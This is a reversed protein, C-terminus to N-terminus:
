ISVEAQIERVTIGKQRYKLIGFQVSVVIQGLTLYDAGNTVKIKTLRMPSGDSMEMEGLLSLSKAIYACWKVREEQTPAFVHVVADANLWIVTNTERDTEMQDLRFYFAPIGAETKYSLTNNRDGLLIGSVREKQFSQLAAIPDPEFTEQSSFEFIDFLMRSRVMKARDGEGTNLVPINKTKRWRYCYAAEANPQLFLDKLCELVATEMEILSQGTENSYINVILTGVSGRELNVKDNVSYVIRPYPEGEWDADTDAPPQGWFVAATEQFKGLMGKLKEDGTLIGYLIEEM